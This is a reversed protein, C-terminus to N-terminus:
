FRNQLTAHLTDQALQVEEPRFDGKITLTSVNAYYGGNVAKIFQGFHELTTFHLIM